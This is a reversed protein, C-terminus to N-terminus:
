LVDAVGANLSISAGVDLGIRVLRAAVHFRECYNPLCLVLLCCLPRLSLFPAQPFFMCISKLYIPVVLSYNYYSSLERHTFHWFGFTKSHDCLSFSVGSKCPGAYHFEYRSLIVIKGRQPDTGQRM